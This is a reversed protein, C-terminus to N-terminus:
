AADSELPKRSGERHRRRLHGWDPTLIRPGGIQQEVDREALAEIIHNEVPWFRCLAHLLEALECVVTVEGAESLIGRAEARVYVNEGRPARYELRWTPATFSVGNSASWSLCTLERHAVAHRCVLEIELGPLRAGCETIQRWLEIRSAEAATEVRAVVWRARLAAPAAVILGAVAQLHKALLQMEYFGFVRGFVLVALLGACLVLAISDNNLLTGLIAAIATAACMGGIALLTQTASLGRDRLCHHIHERDGQGIQRGTLRRRIIAMSTDFMPITLLVFPAALTLGTTKKAAGELSLAGLLFGLPLSGCDGLFIKAPPWNHLLFGALVGSLVLAVLSVAALDQIWALLWVAATVILSVTGALGDLGDILNVFNTCSVLWFLVIPVSLWATQLQWGFLFVSDVAGGWLVFPLISVVQCCFKPGARMGWRDDWLGVGCLLVVSTLLMGTFRLSAQDVGAGAEMVMAFTLGAILALCVALGGTRPTARSHLKRQQDPYDLIRFRWGLAAAPFTLAYAVATSVGLTLLLPWMLAFM